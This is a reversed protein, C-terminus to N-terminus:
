VTINYCCYRVSYLIGIGSLELQAGQGLRVVRQAADDVSEYKLSCLDERILDNVNHEEPASLDVVQRWKGFSSKPIVECRSIHVMPFDSVLLLGLIRGEM